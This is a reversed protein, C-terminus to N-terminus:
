LVVQPNTLKRAVFTLMLFVGVTLGDGHSDRNVEACHPDRPEFSDRM